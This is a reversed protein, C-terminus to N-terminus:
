APVAASWMKEDIRDIRLDLYRGEHRAAADLSDDPGVARTMRLEVHHKARSIWM